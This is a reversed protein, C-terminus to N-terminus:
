ATARGEKPKPTQPLRMAYKDGKAVSKGRGGDIKAILKDWERGNTIGRERLRTLQQEPTRKSAAAQREVAEQQRQARRERAIGKVRSSDKQPM